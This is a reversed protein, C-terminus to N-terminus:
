TRDNSVVSVTSHDQLKVEQKEEGFTFFTECKGQSHQLLM